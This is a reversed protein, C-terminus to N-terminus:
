RPGAWYNLYSNKYGFSLIEKKKATKMNINGEMKPIKGTLPPNVM